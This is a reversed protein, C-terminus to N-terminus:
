GRERAEKEQGRKQGGKKLGERKLGTRADRKLWEISGVREHGTDRAGKCGHRNDEREQRREQGREQDEKRGEKGKGREGAGDRRGQM